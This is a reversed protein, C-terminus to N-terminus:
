SRRRRADAILGQVLQSSRLDRAEAPLSDLAAQAQTLLTRAQDPTALAAAVLAL